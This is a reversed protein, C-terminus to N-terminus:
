YINKRTIIYEKIQEFVEDSIYKLDTEDITDNKMDTARIYIHETKTDQLSCGKPLEYPIEDESIEPLPKEKKIKKEKVLRDKEERIRELLVNAPEDNEDQEVLKGRVALSLIYERLKKVKEPRDFITSFEELLM